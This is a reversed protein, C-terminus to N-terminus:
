WVCGRRWIDGGHRKGHEALPSRSKGGRQRPSVGGTQAMLAVWRIASAASVCFRAAAQRRSGGAAVAAVVRSRLDFSHAETGM